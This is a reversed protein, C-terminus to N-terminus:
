PGLTCNFSKTPPEDMFLPVTNIATFFQFLNANRILKFNYQKKKKM